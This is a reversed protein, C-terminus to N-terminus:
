SPVSHEIAYKKAVSSETYNESEGKGGTFLLKDVYGNEYLWISHNIRERFVPSPEDDYIGAGLVIAV